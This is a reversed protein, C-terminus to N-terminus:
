KSRRCAEARQAGISLEKRQRVNLLKSKKNFDGLELVHVVSFVQVKILIV